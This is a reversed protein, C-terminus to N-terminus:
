EKDNKHSEYQKKFEQIYNDRSKRSERRMLWVSRQGLIFGVVSGIICGILLKILFEKWEM